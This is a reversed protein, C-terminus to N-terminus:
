MFQTGIHIFAYSHRFDLVFNAFSFFFGAVVDGIANSSLLSFFISFNCLCWFSCWISDILTSFSSSCVCKTALVICTVDDVCMYIHTYPFISSAFCLSFHLLFVVVVVVSFLLIAVNERCSFNLVSYLCLCVHWGCFVLLM